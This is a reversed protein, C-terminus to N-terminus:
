GLAGEDGEPSPMTSLYDELIVVAAMKDIVKKRKARSVDAAILREEAQVTSYREDWMKFPIDMGRRSLYAQLRESFAKIKAAEPGIEGEEDLPLGVLILQANLEQCKEAIAEFDRADGKRALVGIGQATLGLPDSTALGIRKTGIDLCLIRMAKLDWIGFCIGLM